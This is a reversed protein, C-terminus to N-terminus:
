FVKTENSRLNHWFLPPYLMLNEDEEKSNKGCIHEITVRRVGQVKMVCDSIELINDISRVFCIAILDRNGSTEMVAVIDPIQAVRDTVQRLISKSFVRISFFVQGIYGFKRLDIRITPQIVGNDFLNRYRRMVTDASLGMEKAIKRFSIRSNNQLHKVLEADIEDCEIM